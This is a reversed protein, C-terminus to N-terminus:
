PSPAGLRQDRDTPSPSARPSPVARPRLMSEAAVPLERSLRGVHSFCPAFEGGYPAPYECGSGAHGNDGGGRGAGARHLGRPGHCLWQESCLYLLLPRTLCRLCPQWIPRTQPGVCLVAHALEDGSGGHDRQWFLVKDGEWLVEWTGRPSM